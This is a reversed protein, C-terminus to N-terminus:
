RAPHQELPREYYKAGCGVCGVLFRERHGRRWFRPRKEPQYVKNTLFLGCKRCASTPSFSYMTEDPEARLAANEDGMAKLDTRLRENEARLRAVEDEIRYPM